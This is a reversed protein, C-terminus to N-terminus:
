RYCILLTFIYLNSELLLNMDRLSNLQFEKNENRALVHLFIQIFGPLLIVKQVNDLYKEKNQIIKKALVSRNLVTSVISTTLPFLKSINRFDM